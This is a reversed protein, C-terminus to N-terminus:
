RAVRRLWGQGGDLDLVAYTGWRGRGSGGHRGRLSPELEARGTSGADVILTGVEPLGFALQADALFDFPTVRATGGPDVHVLKPRHSHGTLVLPPSGLGEVLRAANAADIWDWSPERISHVMTAALAGGAGLFDIRAPLARAWALAEPTLQRDVDRRELITLTGGPGVWDEHNGEVTPVGAAELYAALASSQPGDAYGVVDGVCALQVEEGGEADVVARVADLAGHPDGLVVLRRRPGLDFTTSAPSM